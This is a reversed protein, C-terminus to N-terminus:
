RETDERSGTSPRPLRGAALRGNLRRPTLVPALLHALDSPQESGPRTQWDKESIVPLTEITPAGQDLDAFVAEVDDVSYVRRNILTLSGVILLVLAIGGALGGVTYLILKKTPVIPKLPMQPPDQVTITKIGSKAAAEDLQITTLTAQLQAVNDQDQRNQSQLQQYTPDLVVGTTALVEPHARQYDAIRQGDRALLTKAATLQQVYFTEAEKDLLLQTRTDYAIVLNILSTAIEQAVAPNKDQVTILIADPGVTSATISTDGRVRQAAAVQGTTSSLDYAGALRTGAAIQAAFANTQLLENMSNAENTNPNLYSNYSRSTLASLQAPRNVFLQATSEYIALRQRAYFTLAIPLMLVIFIYLYWRRHLTALFRM